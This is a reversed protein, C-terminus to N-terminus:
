YDIKDDFFCWMFGGGFSNIYRFDSQSSIDAIFCYFQGDPLLCAGNGPIIDSSYNLFGCLSLNVSIFPNSPANSILPTIHLLDFLPDYTQDSIQNLFDPQKIFQMQSFGFPDDSTYAKLNFSSLSNQASLKSNIKIGPISLYESPINKLVQMVQAFLSRQIQQGTTKPNSVVPQYSRVTETSKHKSFVVNGVKGAANGLFGNKVRAM